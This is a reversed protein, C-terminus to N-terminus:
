ELCFKLYWCFGALTHLLVCSSRQGPGALYVGEASWSWSLPHSAARRWVWGQERCKLGLSKTKRVETTLLKENPERRM